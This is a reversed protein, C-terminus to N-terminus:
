TLLESTPFPVVNRMSNRLHNKKSTLRTLTVDIEDIIINEFISSNNVNNVNLFSINGTISFIKGDNRPM